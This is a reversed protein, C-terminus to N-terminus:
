QATSEGGGHGLGDLGAGPVAVHDAEVAIGALRLVPQVHVQQTAEVLRQHDGFEVEAGAIAAREPPTDGLDVLLLLTARGIGLEELFGGRLGQYDTGVPELVEVLRGGAAQEIALITM